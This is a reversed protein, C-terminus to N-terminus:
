KLEAETISLAANAKWFDADLANWPYDGSVDVIYMQAAGTPKPFTWTVWGDPGVEGTAQQSMAGKFEITVDASTALETGGSAKENGFVVKIQWTADTTSSIFDLNTESIWYNKNSFKLDLPQNIFDITENTIQTNANNTNPYLDDLISEAPSTTTSNTNVNTNTMEEIPIPKIPGLDELISNTPANANEAQRLKELEYVERWAQQNSEYEDDCGMCGIGMTMLMIIIPALRKM